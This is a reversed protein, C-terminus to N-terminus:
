TRFQLLIKEALHVNKRIDELWIWGEGECYIASSRAARLIGLALQQTESLPFSDNRM